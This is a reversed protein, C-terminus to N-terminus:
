EIFQRNFLKKKLGGNLLSVILLFQRHIEPLKDLTSLLGEIEGPKVGRKIELLYKDLCYRIDKPLGLSKVHIDKTLKKLHNHNVSLM